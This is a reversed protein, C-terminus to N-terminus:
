SQKRLQKKEEGLVIIEQLRMQKNHREVYWEKLLMEILSILLGAEDPEVDVIVNVDGEMHAGINGVTRVVDIAQFTDSDIKDKLAIIEDYLTRESIGWRDRIMGQLCRRSLTASAKPSKTKILCAEKYDDLIVQPIYDPFPKAESEPILFFEKYVQYENTKRDIKYIVLNIEQERCKINPCTIVESEFYFYGKDNSIFEKSTNLIKKDNSSLTCDRDCYPCTWHQTDM